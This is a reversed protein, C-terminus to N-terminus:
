WGPLTLSPATRNPGENWSPWVATDARVAISALQGLLVVSGLWVTVLFRRGPANMTNRM